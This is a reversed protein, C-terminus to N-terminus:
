INNEKELKIIETANSEREAKKDTRNSGKHINLVRERTVLSNITRIRKLRIM